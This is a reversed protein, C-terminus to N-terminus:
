IFIFIINFINSVGYKVMKSVSRVHYTSVRGGAKMGVFAYNAKGQSGLFRIYANKEPIYTGNKIVYKAGRAYDKANTYMSGVESGHKEFHQTLLTKSSFTGYKVGASIGGSVAGTVAGALAGDGMGNLAATGTGATAVTVAAVAAVVVVVGVAAAAKKAWNPLSWDGNADCRNISDNMCYITLNYQMLNELEEDLVNVDDASIFRRIEPDYYRSQLYYMGSEADFYYGRYRFPNKQGVTAAM